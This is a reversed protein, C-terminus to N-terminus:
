DFGSCVGPSHPLSPAPAISQRPAGLLPLPQTGPVDGWPPASPAWVLSCNAASLVPDRCGAVAPARCRTAPAAARRGVAGAGSGRALAADGLVDLFPPAPM